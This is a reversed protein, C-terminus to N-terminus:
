DQISNYFEIEEPAKIKKKAKSVGKFSKGNKEGIRREKQNLYKCVCM